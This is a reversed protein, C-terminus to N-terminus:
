KYLKNIDPLKSKLWRQHQLAWDVTLKLGQLFKVEPRWGFEKHAKSSDLSYRIDHGLRDQVFEIQEPSVGLVKLLLKATDINRSEGIGGLNYVEGVRGKRMIAAIGRMCDDVYLWQRINKGDGYLPIKGGELVRLIGLSIFKEPYQWPGYNNSPRIIIAPFKYAKVYAQVLLDAAAKSVAYPNNPKFCANEKFKGHVLKGYVEDTSIYVFKKVGYRRCADILIQTGKVNTKIFVQADNISRDVHSEAAFHVVIEPKEKKFVSDIQRKNCIDVKYFKFKRRVSELRKLDGAYTLRDVVVFPLEGQVSFSGKILLKVFASGMFGAGGTILIKPIRKPM